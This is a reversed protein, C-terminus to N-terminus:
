QPLNKKALHDKIVLQIAVQKIQKLKIKREEDTIKAPIITVIAKSM